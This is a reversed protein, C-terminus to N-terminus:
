DLLWDRLRLLEAAFLVTGAVVVVVRAAATAARMLRERSTSGTLARRVSMWVVASFAAPTAVILMVLVGMFAYGARISTPDPRGYIPWHGVHQSALYAYLMLWLFGMLPVVSLLGPFWVRIRILTRKAGKCAQRGGFWHFRCGDGSDKGLSGHASGAEAFSKTRTAETSDAFELSGMRSLIRRVDERTAVSIKEAALEEEVHREMDASVEDADAGVAVLRSRADAVCQDFEERASSTWTIM